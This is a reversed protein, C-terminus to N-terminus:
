LGYYVKVLELEAADLFVKKELNDTLKIIICYYKNGAKSTREELTAVVEM